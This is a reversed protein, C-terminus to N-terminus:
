PEREPMEPRATPVHLSEAPGRNDAARVGPMTAASRGPAPVASGDRHAGPEAAADVILQASARDLAVARQLLWTSTVGLDRMSTELPGPWDPGNRAITRPARRWRDDTGTAARATALVRSPAGVWAAIGCAAEAAHASAQGATHYVGLLDTVRSQPATTFPDRTQARPLSLSPVLIRGARAAAALQDYETGATAELCDLAHHVASILLPIDALGGALM